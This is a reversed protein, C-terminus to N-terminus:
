TSTGRTRIAKSSAREFIMRAYLRGIRRAVETLDHGAARLADLDVVKIGDLYELVLLKATSHERHVRPVRVTPDRALAAGIRVTADAERAFDLELAVFEAVEDMISRLDFSRSMRGTVRALQRLCALDVRALREIEPYQVKVAVDAGDRLRARHVQALSAAALPTEDVTEFVEALPRGLEREIQARMDRFPRPPVADHFRGLRRIYPEPFNDARAGVVQCLKVFLGALHIGLDHLGRATRDHIRDWTATPAPWGLRERLELWRYAAIAPLAVGAIRLVRYVAFRQLM